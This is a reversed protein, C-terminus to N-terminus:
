CSGGGRSTAGISNHQLHLTILHTSTLLTVLRPVSACTLLNHHLDLCTIGKHTQLGVLLVEARIDDVCSEYVRLHTIGPASTVAHALSAAEPVSIGLDVWRLDSDEEVTQYRVSVVKLSPLASIVDALNLHDLSGQELGALEGSHSAPALSPIALTQVYPACLQLLQSLTRWGRKTDQTTSVARALHTELYGRQWSSEQRVATISPLTHVHKTSETSTVRASSQQKEGSGASGGGAEVDVSGSGLSEVPIQPTVARERVVRQRLGKQRGALALHPPPYHAQTRRRWYLDDLPLALAVQLPLDVSLAACVETLDRRTLRGLQMREDVNITIVRLCLARLEQVM